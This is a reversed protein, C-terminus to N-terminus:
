DFLVCLLSALNGDLLVFATIPETIKRLAGDTANRAARPTTDPKDIQEQAADDVYSKFLENRSRLENVWVTLGLAQVARTTPRGRNKEGEGKPSPTPPTLVAEGEAPRHGATIFM